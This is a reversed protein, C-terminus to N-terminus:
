FGLEMQRKLVKASESAEAFTKRFSWALPHWRSILVHWGWSGGRIHPKKHYHPPGCLHASM